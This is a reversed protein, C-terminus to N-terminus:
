PPCLRRDRYIIIGHIHNPMIVYDDMKLNLEPRLSSTIIWEKEIIGGIPSLYMKGNEISGFYEKRNRTCITIFYGANGSYDFWPIRPSSIRYKNRFKKPM